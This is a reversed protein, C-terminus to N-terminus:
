RTEKKSAGAQAAGPAPTTGPSPASVPNPPPNVAAPPSPAAVDAGELDSEPRKFGLDSGRSWDPDLVDGWDVTKRMREVTAPDVLESDGRIEWGGGLSRYAAIAGLAINAHSRVLLDEQQLQVTQADNVRIFDVAGARYQILSIEVSRRAAVVSDALKVTRERSRLFRSLGAEVEGAARLVTEQYKAAAQEYIADQARVASIIRGYNLIPWDIELGIFGEFSNGDFINGLEPNIAGNYSSSGFGTMGAISIRPLLETEAAGIRASEASCIREAARVDPRRRLLDAPVGIAIRAPAEPVRPLAGDPPTLVDRLQSPARGLLVCLVLQTDRIGIQLEPIQAETNLLTAEATTVDLESVAGKEFRIRTLDRTARQLQVNSHAIALREELSRLLVYTSAVEAVLSVLAQDYNALSALVEADAAEIGRRFKGWVDIEWVAQLGVEDFGYATDGVGSPTNDSLNTYGVSGFVSQSQPFFRGVAIGRRARAEIVRLGATRLTLNERYAQEILANLVPDQFVRWWAPSVEEETIPGHAEPRELWGANVDTSPQEYDPGVM